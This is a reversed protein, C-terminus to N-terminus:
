PIEWVSHLKEKVSGRTEVKMLKRQSIIVVGKRTPKTEFDFHNPYIFQFNTIFKAKNFHQLLLIVNISKNAIKEVCFIYFHRDFYHIFVWGM